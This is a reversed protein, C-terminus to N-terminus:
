LENKILVKNIDKKDYLVSKGLFQLNNNICFTKVTSCFWDPALPNLMVSKIFNPIHSFSIPKSKTHAYINYKERMNKIDALMLDEDFDKYKEYILKFFRDDQCAAIIKINDQADQADDWRTYNVLRIEQEHAFAKRKIALCKLFCFFDENAYKMILNLPEDTYQVEYIYIDNLKKIDNKSIEIRVSFNNYAYIRWLADSESLNTWAQVFIRNYIALKTLKDWIKSEEMNKIGALYCYQEFIDDFKSPHSFYLIQQQIIDVFSEFSIFRYITENNM